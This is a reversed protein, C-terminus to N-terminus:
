KAAGVDCRNASVPFSDLWTQVDQQRWRLLKTGPLQLRPPVADPNRRLDRKITGASRGLVHAIDDLTM